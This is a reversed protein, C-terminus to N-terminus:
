DWLHFDELSYTPRFLFFLYFLIFSSVSFCLRVTL